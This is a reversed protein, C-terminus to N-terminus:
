RAGEGLSRLPQPVPRRDRRLRSAASVTDHHRAGPTIAIATGTMALAVALVVALRVIPRLTPTRTM